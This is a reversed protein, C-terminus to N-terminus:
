NCPITGEWVKVGLASLLNVGLESAMYIMKEWLHALADGCYTVNALVGPGCAIGPVADTNCYDQAIPTLVVFSDFARDILAMIKAVLGVIAPLSM